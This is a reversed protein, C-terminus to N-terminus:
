KCSCRASSISDQFTNDHVLSLNKEEKSFSMGQGRYHSDVFVELECGKFVKFSSFTDNLAYPSFDDVQNIAGFNNLTFQEGTFGAHQYFIACIREQPEWEKIEKEEYSCFPDIKFSTMSDIDMKSWFFRHNGESLEEELEEYFLANDSELSVKQPHSLYLDLSWFGFSNEEVKCYSQNREKHCNEWNLRSEESAYYWLYYDINRGQCQYSSGEIWKKIHPRKGPNQCVWESLIDLKEKHYEKQTHHFFDDILFNSCDAFLLVPTMLFIFFKM